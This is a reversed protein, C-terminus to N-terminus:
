LITVLRYSVCGNRLRKLRTIRSGSYGKLSSSYRRTSRYCRVNYQCCRSKYRNCGKHHNSRNNKLQQHRQQYRRRCWQMRQMRPRQQWWRQLVVDSDSHLNRFGELLTFMSSLLHKTFVDMYSKLSVFVRIKTTSCLEPILLVCVCVRVCM